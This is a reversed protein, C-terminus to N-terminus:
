ADHHVPPPRGSSHNAGGAQLAAEEEAVHTANKDEALLYVQFMFDRNPSLPVYAQDDRFATSVEALNDGFTMSLSTMNSVSSTAEGDPNTIRFREALLSRQGSSLDAVSDLSMRMSRLGAGNLAVVQCRYKEGHVVAIPLVTSMDTCSAKITELPTQGGPPIDAEDMFVSVEFGDISSEADHVPEWSCIIEDNRAYWPAGQQAGVVVAGMEPPTDDVHVLWSRKAVAGGKSIGRLTVNYHVNYHGASMAASSSINLEHGPVSACKSEYQDDGDPRICLEFNRVNLTTNKNWHLVLAKRAPHLVNIAAEDDEMYTANCITSLLRSDRDFKVNTLSPPLDV